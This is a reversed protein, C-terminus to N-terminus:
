TKGDMITKIIEADLLKRISVLHAFLVIPVIVAPLWVLPFYTVGINPQNLALKQFPTQASLVALILINILLCLCIANWILLGKNGIQRKVFAFYYIIPASIGSLIDFNYGDFTMVHPILEELFVYYLVIEVPIRILHILTLWKLSLNDIFIRGKKSFFILIVLLIGPGLLFLFRPPYANTNRYFGSLGLISVLIMWVVIGLIVKKNNTAKYFFYLTALTTLIFGIVVTNSIEIM